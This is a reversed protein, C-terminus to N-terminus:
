HGAHTTPTPSDSPHASPYGVDITFEATHVTGAHKFDLFLRYAGASPAAMHFAVEPGAATRGDGPAGSPHVHLYALDSSRLAVLHGYAGLYPQLDTVPRGDRSITFGVMSGTQAAVDAAMTITYGDVQAITSAVPLPQPRFDGGVALDTGLTTAAGGAPVFDAFVKYDGAASLDVNTSWTGGADLTPHLHQYGGLDRRVVILHLEKDHETEFRTVPSGTADLIRFSVPAAGSREAIPRDLSLTYGNETAALGGPQTNMEQAMEIAAESHEHNTTSDAPGVARGVGFAAAGAIVLIGAFGAVKVATNSM